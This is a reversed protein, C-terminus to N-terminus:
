TSPIPVLITVTVLPQDLQHCCGHSHPSSSWLLDTSGAGASSAALMPNAPTASFAVVTFGSANSGQASPVCRFVHLVTGLYSRVALIVVPSSACSVACYPAVSLLCAQARPAAALPRSRPRAPVHCPATIRSSLPCALVQLLAALPRSLPCAGICAQARFM